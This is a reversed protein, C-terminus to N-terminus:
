KLDLIDHQGRYVVYDFSCVLNINVRELGATGFQQQEFAGAGYQDLGGNKIKQCKPARASLGSRWLARIDFILFPTNSWYPLTYLRLLIPPSLTLMHMSICMTSTRNVFLAMDHRM